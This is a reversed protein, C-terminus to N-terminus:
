GDREEHQSVIWEGVAERIAAARSTHIPHNAVEEDLEEIMNPDMQVKIPEM